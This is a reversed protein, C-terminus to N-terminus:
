AGVVEYSKTKKKKQSKLDVPGDVQKAEVVHQLKNLLGRMARLDQRAVSTGRGRLGLSKLGARQKENLKSASKTQTIVLSKSM